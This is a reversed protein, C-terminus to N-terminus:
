SGTIIQEQADVVAQANYAFRTGGRAKMRRSDPENPDIHRAKDDQVERLAARVKERLASKSLYEAPLHDDPESHASHALQEELEEIQKNLAALQRKLSAEDCTRRTGSCSQIKTGDIAQTVFGVMRLKMAVRVSQKFLGSLASRNQDWFRWLSNHDPRHNGCLWVFGMRERCARELTRTSRVKEYYGYLWVRLMLKTAYRPRGETGGSSVAFGLASLDLGEVFERIFRAPHEAVIWDEICAPLLHVQDWDAEIEYPM